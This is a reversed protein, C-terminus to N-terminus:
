SNNSFYNYIEDVIKQATDTGRFKVFENRNNLLYVERAEGFRKSMDNVVAMQLNNKKLWEVSNAYMDTETLGSSLKFGVIFQNPNKDRLNKITKPCKVMKVILEEKESSIKGGIEQPAYDSVAMAMICIDPKFEDVSNALWMEYEAFNEVEKCVLNDKHEIYENYVKEIRKMEEDFPKHLEVQCLRSFPMKANKSHLYYVSARKRIFAEAFQSGYLGTGINTIGRVDDIPCWTGGSTILVRLQTKM